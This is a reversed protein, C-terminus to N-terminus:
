GLHSWRVGAQSGDPFIAGGDVLPVDAAAAPVVTWRQDILPVRSPTFRPLWVAEFTEAGAQVVGHLGTVALFEADIVNLFDPPALPHTPTPIDTQGRRIFQKGADITLPGRTFTASLRRGALRPRLTGRDAFDVRWSDEVQDHSNARADLGAGFQLWGTPKVFVEERGLLDAVAQTSDNTAEQPF